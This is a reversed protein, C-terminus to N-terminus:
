ARRKEWWLLYSVHHNGPMHMGEISDSPLGDMWVKYYNGGWMAFNASPENSPKDLPVEWEQQGNSVVMKASPDHPTKTYIHHTGGSKQDNWYQVKKLQWYKGGQAVEAETVKLWSPADILERQVKGKSSEPAEPSTAPQPLDDANLLSQVLHALSNLSKLISKLKAKNQSM